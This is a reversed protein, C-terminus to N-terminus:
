SADTPSSSHSDGQSQSRTTRTAVGMDPNNLFELAASVLDDCNSARRHTREDTGEFCSSSKLITGVLRKFEILKM